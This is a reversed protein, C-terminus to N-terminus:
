WYHALTATKRVLARESIANYRDHGQLDQATSKFTLNPEAIQRDVVRGSTTVTWFSISRVEYKLSFKASLTQVCANEAYVDRILRLIHKGAFRTMM